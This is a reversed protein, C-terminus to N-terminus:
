GFWVQPANDNEYGASTTDTLKRQEVNQAQAHRFVIAESVHSCTFLAKREALDSICRRSRHGGYLTAGLGPM